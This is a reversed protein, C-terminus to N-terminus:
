IAITQNPEGVDPLYRDRSSTARRSRKIKLIGQVEGNGRGLGADYGRHATRSGAYRNLVGAPRGGSGDFAVLSDPRRDSWDLCIM